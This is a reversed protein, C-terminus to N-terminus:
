KQVLNIVKDTSYRQKLKLSRYDSMEIERQPKQVISTDVLMVVIEMIILHQKDAIRM